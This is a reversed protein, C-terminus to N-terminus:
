MSRSKVLCFPWQSWVIKVDFWWLMSWMHSMGSKSKKERFFTDRVWTKTIHKRGTDSALCFSNRFTKLSFFEWRACISPLPYSDLSWQLWHIYQWKSSYKPLTSYFDSQFLSQHYKYKRKKRVYFVHMSIGPLWIFPLNDKLIFNQQLYGFSLIDTQLELSFHLIIRHM